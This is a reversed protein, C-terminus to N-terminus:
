LQPVPLVGWRMAHKKSASASDNHSDVHSTVVVHDGGHLHHVTGTSKNSHLIGLIIHGTLQTREVLDDVTLFSKLGTGNSVLSRIVSAENAARQDKYAQKAATINNNNNNISSPLAKAARKFNTRKVTVNTTSSNLPTNSVPTNSVVTSAAVLAKSGSEMPAELITSSALKATVMAAKSVALAMLASKTVNYRAPASCTLIVLNSRALATLEAAVETDRVKTTYEQQFQIALFPASANPNRSLLELINKSYGKLNAVAVAATVATSPTM